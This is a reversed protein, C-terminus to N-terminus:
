HIVMNVMTWRTKERLIERYSAISKRSYVQDYDAGLNDMVNGRSFGLSAKKTEFRSQLLGPGQHTTQIKTGSHFVCKQKKQCKETEKKRFYNILAENGGEIMSIINPLNWDGDKLPIVTGKGRFFDSKTLHRSACTKCLLSGYTPSGFALSEVSGFNDCGCDCCRDNGPLLQVVVLVDRPFGRYTPLDHRTHNPELLIDELMQHVGVQKLKTIRLNRVTMKKFFNSFERCAKEMDHSAGNLCGGPKHKRINKQSSLAANQSEKMMQEEEEFIRVHQMPDYAKNIKVVDDTTSAHKGLFFSHYRSHETWPSVKRKTIDNSGNDFSNNISVFTPLPANHHLESQNKSQFSDNPLIGGHDDGM